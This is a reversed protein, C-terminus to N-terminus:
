RTTVARVMPPKAVGDVLGTGTVNRSQHESLDIVKKTVLAPRHLREHLVNTAAGKSVGLGRQILERPRHLNIPAVLVKTEAKHVGRDDSKSLSEADDGPLM